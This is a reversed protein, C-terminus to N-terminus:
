PPQYLGPTLPDILFVLGFFDIKRKAIPKQDSLGQARAQALGRAGFVTRPVRRGALTALDRPIYVARDRHGM